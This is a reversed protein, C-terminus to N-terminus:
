HSKPLGRPEIQGSLLPSGGGKREKGMGWERKEEGRKVGKTEWKEREKSEKEKGRKEVKRGWVCSPPRPLATLWGEGIPNPCLGAAL